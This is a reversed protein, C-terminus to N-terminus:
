LYYYHLVLWFTFATNKLYKALIGATTSTILDNYISITGDPQQITLNFNQGALDINGDETFSLFNGSFIGNIDGIYYSGNSNDIGLGNLDGNPLAGSVNGESVQYLSSDSFVGIKNYPLYGNGPNTQAGGPSSIVIAAM